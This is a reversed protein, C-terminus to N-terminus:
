TAKGERWADLAWILGIALLVDADEDIDVRYKDRVTMWKQDINIINKTGDTVTYSKGIINGELIWDDGNNLGMTLKKKIPSIHSKLVAIENNESDYFKMRRPVNFWPAKATFLINGNTDKIYAKLGFTIKGDVHYLLNQYDEDSFVEFDRGIGFKSKIYYAKM